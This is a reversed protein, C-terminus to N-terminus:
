VGEKFPGADCRAFRTGRFLCVAPPWDGHGLHYSCLHPECSTHLSRWSRRGNWLTSFVRSKFGILGILYM